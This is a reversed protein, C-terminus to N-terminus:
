PPRPGIPIPHTTRNLRLAVPVAGPIDPVEPVPAAEAAGVLPMAAAVSAVGAMGAQTLFGRRTLRHPSEAPDPADPDHMVPEQCSTIRPEHVASEAGSSRWGPTWPLRAADKEDRSVRRMM